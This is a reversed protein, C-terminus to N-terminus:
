RDIDNLCKIAQTIVPNTLHVNDGCVKAQIDYYMQIIDDSLWERDLVSM